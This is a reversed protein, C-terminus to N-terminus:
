SLKGSLVMERTLATDEPLDVTIVHWPSVGQKNKEAEHCYHVSVTHVPTRPSLDEYLAVAQDAMAERMATEDPVPASHKDRFDVRIDVVPKETERPDWRARWFAAHGNVQPQKAIGLEMRLVTERREDEVLGSKLNYGLDRRGGGDKLTFDLLYQNGVLDFGAWHGQPELDPYVQAAYARIQAASILNGVVPVWAMFAYLLAFGGCLVLATAAALVFSKSSKAHM